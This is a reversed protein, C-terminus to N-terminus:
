RGAVEAVFEAGCWGAVSDRAAIVVQTIGDPISVGSLSRTFPQEDVHPHALIREGLVVGDPARVEWLDAYKDWGTDASSVTASITFGGAAAVVSADVVDACGDASAMTTPVTGEIASDTSSTSTAVGESEAGGCAALLVALGLVGLLNAKHRLASGPSPPLSPATCRPM